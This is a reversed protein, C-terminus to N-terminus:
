FTYNFFHFLLRLCKTEVFVAASCAAVDFGAVDAFEDSGEVAFAVLNRFHELRGREKM